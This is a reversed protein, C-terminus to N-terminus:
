TMGLTCPPEVMRLLITAQQRPQLLEFPWLGHTSQYRTCGKQDERLSHAIACHSCVSSYFCRSKEFQRLTRLPRSRRPQCRTLVLWRGGM